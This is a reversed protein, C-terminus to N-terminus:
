RPTFSCVRNRGTQKAKYLAQDARDMLAKADKAQRPFDALGISVTIQT